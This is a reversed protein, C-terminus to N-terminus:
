GGMDAPGKELGPGQGQKWLPGTKHKVKMMGKAVRAGPPEAHRELKASGM